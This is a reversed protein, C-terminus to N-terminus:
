LSKRRTSYTKRILGPRRVVTERLAEEVSLPTFDISEGYLWAVKAQMSGDLLGERLERTLTHVSFTGDEMIDITITGPTLTISNALMAQAYGDPLDVPVKVIGPKVDKCGGFCRRAMDLNAKILEGLFVFVYVLLSFFRRPHVLRFSKEHIFFRAAFLAAALSVVAGAILEQTEFSWTLLVWFAFCIVFTSLVAPFRTKQM